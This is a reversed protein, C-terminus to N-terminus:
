VFSHTSQCRSCMIAIRYDVRRYGGLAPAWLPAVRSLIVLTYVSSDTWVCVPLELGVDKMLSPHGLGAAAAKVLGYFEARGVLPDSFTTNFEMYTHLAQRDHCLVAPQAGRALVGLGTPIM